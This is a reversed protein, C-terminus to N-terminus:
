RGSKLNSHLIIYNSLLILGASIFLSCIILELNWFSPLLIKTTDFYPILSIISSHGNLQSILIISGFTLAFSMLGSKSIAAFLKAISVVFAFWSVLLLWGYVIISIPIVFLNLYIIFFGILIIYTPLITIEFIAMESLFFNRRIPMTFIFGLYGKEIRQGFMFSIISAYFPILYNPLLSFLDLLNSYKNSVVSSVELMMFFISLILFLERYQFRNTITEITTLNKILTM